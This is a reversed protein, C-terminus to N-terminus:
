EPKPLIIRLRTADDGSLTPGQLSNGEPGIRRLPRSRPQELTQQAWQQWAPPTSRPRRALRWDGSFIIPTTLAPPRRYLYIWAPGYPTAIRDRGYERRYDELSDLRTLLAKNLTYVEGVLATRGGAIAAPYGGLHFLTYRGATRCQGLFPAARLLPHNCEGRRLTGYVFLCHPSGTPKM